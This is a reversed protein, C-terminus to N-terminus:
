SRVSTALWAEERPPQVGYGHPYTLGRWSSRWRLLPRPHSRRSLVHERRKLRRPAYRTGLHHNGVVRGFWRVVGVQPAAGTLLKGHEHVFDRGGVGGVDPSQLFHQEIRGLWDPRPVADDDTLCIVEGRAAQLGANSQAIGGRVTTSVVRLPKFHTWTALLQQTEVDEQQIVVVVDDAARDQQM